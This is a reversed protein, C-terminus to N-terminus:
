ISLDNMFMNYKEFSAHEEPSFLTLMRGDVALTPSRPTQVNSPFQDIVNCWRDMYDRVPISDDEPHSTTLHQDLRSPLKSQSEDWLKKAKSEEWLKELKDPNSLGEM